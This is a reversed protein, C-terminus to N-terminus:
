VSLDGLRQSGGTKGKGANPNCANTAVGPRKRPNPPNLNLDKLKHPWCKKSVSGNKWGRSFKLTFSQEYVTLM